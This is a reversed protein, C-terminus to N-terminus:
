IQWNRYQEPYKRIYGELLGVFSALAGEVGDKGAHLEPGVVLKIEDGEKQFCFLPFIPSGSIKSLSFM